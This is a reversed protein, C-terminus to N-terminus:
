SEGNEMVESIETGNLIQYEDFHITVGGNLLCQDDKATTKEFSAFCFGPFLSDDMHPIQFWPPECTPPIDVCASGPDTLVKAKISETPDDAVMINIQFFYLNYKNKRM